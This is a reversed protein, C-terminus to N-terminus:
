YLDESGIWFAVDERLDEPVKKMDEDHKHEDLMAILNMLDILERSLKEKAEKVKM